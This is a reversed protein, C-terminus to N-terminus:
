DPFPCAEVGAGKIVGLAAGPQFPKYGAEKFVKRALSDDVVGEPLTDTPIIGETHLFATVEAINARERDGFYFNMWERVPNTSGAPVKGFVSYWLVRKPIGTAYDSVMTIVSEWNAPDLMFLQAELDSRLYGAAVDPYKEMFDTRMTVIGLDANDCASGDAAIRGVGEGVESALQSLMPEWLSAADLRGERFGRSIVEISQNLYEAPKVGYKAFFRRMYQDSASGKPAAVIKGDLWRALAENDPFDPADKRVLVLSCRTGESMDTTSVMKVEGKARVCLTVAPMVSMYGIQIQGARMKAAIVTGQVAPQFEIATGEPVYKKWLGLEANIIAQYSITDYPQFGVVFTEALAARGGFGMAMCGAFLLAMVRKM